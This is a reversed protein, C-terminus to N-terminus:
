GEGALRLREHWEVMSEDTNDEFTLDDASRLDPVWPLRDAWRVHIRHPPVPFPADVAAAFPYVLGPWAERDLFLPGGCGGGFATVAGESAEYRWPPLAGADKRTDAD